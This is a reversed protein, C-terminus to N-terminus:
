GKTKVRSPFLHFFRPNGIPLLIGRLMGMCFQVRSQKQVVDRQELQLCIVSPM